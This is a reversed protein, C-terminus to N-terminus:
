TIYNKLENEIGKIKELKIDLDVEEHSEGLQRSFRTVASENNGSM